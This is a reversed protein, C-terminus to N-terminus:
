ILERCMLQLEINREQYNIVSKISFFRDKFKVRMSPTIGSKYRMRIRHTVESNVTEAAFFEKGVIPNVSAWVTVVDPWNEVPQGFSDQSNELKQITIKHRLEGANM